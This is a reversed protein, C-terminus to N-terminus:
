VLNSDLKGAFVEMM